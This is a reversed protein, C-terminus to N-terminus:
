ESKAEEASLLGDRLEVFTRLRYLADDRDAETLGDL